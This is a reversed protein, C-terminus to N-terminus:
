SSIIKRAITTFASRRMQLDEDSFPGFMENWVDAVIKEVQVESLPEHVSRTLEAIREEILTAEGNYEDAPCGIAMLGEIDENDLAAKIQSFMTWLKM